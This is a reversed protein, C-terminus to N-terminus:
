GARQRLADPDLVLTQGRALRVEGRREAARLVRNVTARSTGALGALEEQTLALVASPGDRDDGVLEATRRLVRTEASLYLAEVLRGTLRRVSEALATLLVTSVAPNSERLREFDDRRIARTEGAELAAVTASRRGDPGLLAMEGFFGGPGVISLTAVDGLPTIVRVGFRGSVVLHLTDAPDDRHFVVEGRSFVRRRSSRLLELAQPEPVADLIAWQVAL